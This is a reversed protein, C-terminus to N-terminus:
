RPDGKSTPAPARAVLRLFHALLAPGHERLVSRGPAFQERNVVYHHVLGIWTNFLLHPPMELIAGSSMEREAAQAIHFSVASQLGLWEAHFGKSLQPAELLLWRVQDEHEALCELHAALADALSGGRAALAHLREAVERAIEAVVASMLDERSPFHVFVSGHSVRAARAVDLTRTRVFGRKACLRKAQALIRARTAAKQRGRATPRNSSDLSM